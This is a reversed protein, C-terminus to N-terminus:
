KITNKLETVEQQTSSNHGSGLQKLKSNLIAVEQCKLEHQKEMAKLEKHTETESVEKSKVLNRIEEELVKTNKKGNNFERYLKEYNM